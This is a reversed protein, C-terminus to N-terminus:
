KSALWILLRQGIKLNESYRGSGDPPNTKYPPPNPMADLMASISEIETHVESYQRSYYEKNKTESDLKKELDIIEAAQEKIITAPAKKREAM